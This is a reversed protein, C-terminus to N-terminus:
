VFTNSFVLLNIYVSVDDNKKVAKVILRIFTKRDKVKRAVFAFSEAAFEIIYDPNEDSLLPLLTVFVSDINKVLSRWLFKFMYALSTFAWELQEADNTNLLCLLVDLVEEYYEYFEKRLDRAVAILLRFGVIIIYIFDNKIM